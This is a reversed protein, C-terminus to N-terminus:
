LKVEAECWGASDSRYVNFGVLDVESVTVWDLKVNNLMAKGTFSSLMVDTPDETLIVDQRAPYVLPTTIIWTPDYGVTGHIGGQGIIQINDVGPTFTYSNSRDLTRANSLTFTWFGTNDTRASMLDSFGLSGLGDVDHLQLYVMANIVPTTTDVLFMFGRFVNATPPILSVGTTVQYYAGSNNDTEDGSTVQFYYTTSPQLGSITVYHTTTSTIGDTVVNPLPNPPPNVGWAVSGNSTVLTAWSVVFNVDRVNSITVKNIGTAAIGPKTSFGFLISILLISIVVQMFITKKCM